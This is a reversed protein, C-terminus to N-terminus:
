HPPSPQRGSFSREKPNQVRESEPGYLGKDIDPTGPTTNIHLRHPMEEQTDKSSCIKRLHNKNSNMIIMEEGEEWKTELPAM